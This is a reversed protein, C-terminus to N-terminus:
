LVTGQNIEKLYHDLIRLYDATRPDGKDIHIRIANNQNNLFHLRGPCGATQKRDGAEISILAFYRGESYRLDHLDERIFRKLLLGKYFPPESIPIANRAARRNQLSNPNDRGILSVSALQQRATRRSIRKEVADPTFIYQISVSLVIVEVGVISVALWLAWQKHIFNAISIALLFLLMMGVIRLRNRCSEIVIVGSDM